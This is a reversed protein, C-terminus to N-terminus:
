AETAKGSNSGGEPWLWLVGVILLTLAISAPYYVSPAIDIGLYALVTHAEIIVPVSFALLVLLGAPGPRNM